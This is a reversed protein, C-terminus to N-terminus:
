ALAAHSYKFLVQSLPANRSGKRKAMIHIIYVRVYHRIPECLGKDIEHRLISLSPGLVNNMLIDAIPIGSFMLLWETAKETSKPRYPM